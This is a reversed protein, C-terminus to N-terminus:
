ALKPKAIGMWEEADERTHFIRIDFSVHKRLGNVWIEIIACTLGEHVVIATKSRTVEDPCQGKFEEVMTELEGLRIDAQHAEILWIDNTHQYEKLMTEHRIITRILPYDFDGLLEVQLHEAKKQILYMDIPSTQTKM